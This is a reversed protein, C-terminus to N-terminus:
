ITTSNLPAPGLKITEGTSYNTGRPLNFKVPCAGTLHDKFKVPCANTMQEKDNTM